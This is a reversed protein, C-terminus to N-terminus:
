LTALSPRASGLRAAIVAEAEAASDAHGTVAPIFDERGLALLELDSLARVTATRPSDRLLAIEGFFDGPGETRVRVDDELVEVEGAAIVYFREGPEGQTMVEEGTTFRARAVRSALTELTAPALPALVPVGRLLELEAPPATAEDLRVIRPWTLATMVPLISGTAVLAGRIGLLEILVPALAAGIGITGWVLGELVGFVRGRVEEPAARQLLTIAAIDVFTNGVGVVALLAIAAIPSGFAAILAIPAGWLVMGLGFAPALRRGGALTLATVGGILGGVGVSADLLGVGGNGLDLLDLAVVVVLVTLMGSVLTQAGMMGVVLRLRADGLVTRLGATLERSLGTEDGGAERSPEAKAPLRVLLTASGLLLTASVAFVLPISGIALLLGGLAPGAFMSASEFTNTVVNAATLQQPDPALDPLLANKAPEFATSVMVLIGGLVFVVAPPLDLWISAAAAATIVARVLDTSLMVLRRPYRDALAAAFPSVLAAPLMRSLMVVGVLAAGGIDFAYVSAAVGFSWLALLSALYAFQLRRLDALRFVDAGAALSERLRTSIALTL